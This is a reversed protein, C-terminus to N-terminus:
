EQLMIFNLHRGTKGGDRRHSFFVDDRCSTCYGSSFINEPPVGREELQLRNVLSLDLLWRDKEPHPRLLSLRDLFGAFARWVPAAVQYCCPGIAPGIAVLLDSKRSSFDKELTDIVKGAINLATGRWGAHAAAIVRRGKDVMLIPVCDATRVGIAIGPRSTVLADFQWGEGSPFPRDPLKERSAGNIALIRDGHVQNMVAFRSLPLQFADAWLEWNRGVKEVPDGERCSFNLGAFSGESVGGRRTSFAHLLFDCEALPLAELYEIPGKRSFKFASLKSNVKGNIDPPLGSM